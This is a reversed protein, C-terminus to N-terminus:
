CIVGSGLCVEGDYLVAFQGPAIGREKEETLKVRLRTKADDAYDAVCAYREAGHRIKVFLKKRESEEKERTMNRKEASVLWRFDSVEFTDREVNPMKLRHAIFVINKEADKGTVYWPGGSLDLGHRQGITYFWHGKHRAVVSQTDTDVVDGEREGLYRHLFDRYEIKGLFCLGQSDPRSQTPLNWTRAKERVASKQYEGVPFLARSLQERTLRSLFYTQDKVPDAASLLVQEFSGFDKENEFVSDSIDGNSETKRKGNETEGRACTESNAIRAYHGTAVKDFVRGNRDIYELFAGFKIMGNCMVDPNPTRGAVTEALTYAIVRERYERQLPVVELPVGVQKCVARAYRLDEEWPCSALFDAEDELWIKLYFATIDHGEDRLLKLAVSSDVGGSVLMAIRM